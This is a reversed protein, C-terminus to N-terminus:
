RGKEEKCPSKFKFRHNIDLDDNYTYLIKSNKLYQLIKAGMMNLNNKKKKLYQL